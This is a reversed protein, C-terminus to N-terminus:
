NNHVCTCSISITIRLQM